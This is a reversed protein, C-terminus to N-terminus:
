NGSAFSSGQTRSVPGEGGCVPRAGLAHGIKESVPVRGNARGGGPWLNTPPAAFRSGLLAGLRPSGLNVMKMKWVLGLHIKM